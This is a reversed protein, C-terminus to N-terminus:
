LDRQLVLADAGEGAAGYYGPREGVRRFGAAKYLAIAGRNSRAVELFMRRAGHSAAAALAETLLARGLGRRRWGLAVALTLIEAEEAAARCFIFGVPGDRGEGVFAFGDALLPAITEATWAVSFAGAHLDALM